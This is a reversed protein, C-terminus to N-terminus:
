CCSVPVDVLFVCEIAPLKGLESSVTEDITGGRFFLHTVAKPDYLHRFNDASVRYEVFDLSSVRRIRRLPSADISAGHFTAITERDILRVGLFTPAPDVAVEAGNALLDNVAIDEFHTARMRLLFWGAALVLAIGVGVLAYKVKRNAM